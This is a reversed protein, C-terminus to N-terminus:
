RKKMVETNKIFDKCWGDSKGNEEAAKAYGIAADWDKCWYAAYALNFLVVNATKPNIRAKKSDEKQAVVRQWIQTAPIIAKAFETRDENKHNSVLKYAETALTFASDLDAYDEKDKMKYIDVYTTADGKYYLDTLVASIRAVARYHVQMAEKSAQTRLTSEWNQIAEAETNYSTGTVTFVWSDNKQALIVGTKNNIIKYQFPQEYSGDKTYTTTIVEAGNVTSKSTSTTVKPAQNVFSRYYEYNILVEIDAPSTAKKLHQMNYTLSSATYSGGMYEPINAVIAYTKYTSDLVVTPVKYYTINTREYKTKQAYSHLAIISVCLLVMIKKYTIKQKVSTRNVIVM